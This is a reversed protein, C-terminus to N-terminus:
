VLETGIELSFNLKPLLYKKPEEELYNELKMRISHIMKSVQRRTGKSAPEHSKRGVTEDRTGETESKSRRERWTHL